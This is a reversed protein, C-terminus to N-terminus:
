LYKDAHIKRREQELRREEEQRCKEQEEPTANASSVLSLSETYFYDLFRSGNINSIFEVKVYIRGRPREDYIYVITGIAEGGDIFPYSYNVKVKMGIEPNTIM